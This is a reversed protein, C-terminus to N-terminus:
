EGMKRLTGFDLMDVSPFLGPAVHFSFHISVQYQEYTSLVVSCDIYQSVKLIEMFNQTTTNSVAFPTCGFLVPPFEPRKPFM